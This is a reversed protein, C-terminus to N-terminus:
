YDQEEEVVTTRRPMGVPAGAPPVGAGPPPVTGPPYGYGPYGPYGPYAGYPAAPPGVQDTRHVVTRGSYPYGRRLGWSGWSNWFILSVVFGIVGVIMLILGITQIDFGTGQATIAFRMIAGVTILILSTGIGM